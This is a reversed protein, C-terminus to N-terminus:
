QSVEQTAALVARRVTADFDSPLEDRRRSPQITKSPSLEAVLVRMDPEVVKGPLLRQGDTAAALRYREFREEADRAERQQYKAVLQEESRYLSHGPKLYALIGDKPKFKECYVARIQDSGDYTGVQDVLTITLWDLEASTNVMRELLEMIALRAEPESPFFKLVSLKSVAQKISNKM